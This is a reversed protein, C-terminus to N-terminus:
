CVEDDNESALLLPAVAQLGAVRELHEIKAVDDPTMKKARERIWNPNIGLNACISEFGNFLESQGFLWSQASEASKLQSLKLSDRHNVWDFMARVIVKLWLIRIGTYRDDFRSSSYPAVPPLGDDGTDIEDTTINM